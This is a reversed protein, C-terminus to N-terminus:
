STPLKKTGKYIMWLSIMMIVHSIDIHNFYKHLAYKTIFIIASLILITFGSAIWLSSKEKKSDMFLLVMVPIMGVVANLIVVLFNHFVFVSILFLILQIDYSVKWYKKSPSNKLVSNLAGQQAFYVAIINLMQMPLWFSKYAIGEHVAFFAHSCSGVLSALGVFLIHNAWSLTAASRNDGNRLTWYFYFCLGSIIYSTFVAVPEHVAIKGIYITTDLVGSNNM